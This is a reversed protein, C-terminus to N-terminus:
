KQKKAIEAKIKELLAQTEMTQPNDKGLATELIGLARACLDGAKGPQKLELWCAALNHLCKATEPHADAYHLRCIRLAEETSKLAEDHRGRHAFVEALHLHVHMLEPADPTFKKLFGDRASVLLKEAEDARGLRALVAGLNDQYRALDAADIDQQQLALTLAKEATVRAKELRRHHYCLMGFAALNRAQTVPSDAYRREIREVAQQIARDAEEDRGLLLLTDALLADFNLIEDENRKVKEADAIATSFIMIAEAYRSAGQCARGLREASGFAINGEDSLWTNKREADFRTRKWVYDLQPIADNWRGAARYAEGLEARRVIVEIDDEKFVKLASNLAQEYYRIAAENDGRTAAERALDRFSKAPPPQSQAHLVVPGCHLVALFILFLVGRALM